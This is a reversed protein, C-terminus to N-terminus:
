DPSSELHNFSGQWIQLVRTWNARVIDAFRGHQRVHSNYTGPPECIRCQLNNWARNGRSVIPAKKEAPRIFVMCGLFRTAAGSCETITRRSFPLYILLIHYDTNRYLWAAGASSGSTENRPSENTNIENMVRQNIQYQINLKAPRSGHRQTVLSGGSIGQQTWIVILLM